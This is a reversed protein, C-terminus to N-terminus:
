DNAEEEAKEFSAEGIGFFREFFAKLKDIVTQKKKARVGGAGFRSVPPLLKDIDTGTTKIGGDRFANELFKRTEPEKLKEERILVDIHKTTIYCGKGPIKYIIQKEELKHYAKAVTNPNIGLQSALARVSPLQEDEQLIGATIYELIQGKLQEFIPIRSQTKIEFM